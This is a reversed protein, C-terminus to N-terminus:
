EKEVFITLTPLNERAKQRRHSKRHIVIHKSEILRLFGGESEQSSDGARM